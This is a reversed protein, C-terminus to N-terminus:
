QLVLLAVALNQQYASARDPQVWSSVHLLVSGGSYSGTFYRGDPAIQMLSAKRNALDQPAAFVEVTVGDDPAASQSLYGGPGSFPYAPDGPPPGDVLLPYASPGGMVRELVSRAATASQAFAPSSAFTWAAVVNLLALLLCVARM